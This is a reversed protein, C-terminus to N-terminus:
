RRIWSYATTGPPAAVDEDGESRAQSHWPSTAADNSATTSDLRARDEDGRSVRKFEM